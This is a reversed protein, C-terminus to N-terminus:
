KNYPPNKQIRDKIDEMIEQPNMPEIIITGHEKEFDTIHKEILMEIEKSVSRKNHKAITKMKIVNDECTRIRVVPLTSPM